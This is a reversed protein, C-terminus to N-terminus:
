NPESLTMNDFYNHLYTRLCNGVFAASVFECVKRFDQCCVSREKDSVEKTWYSLRKSDFKECIFLHASCKSDDRGSSGLERVFLSLNAPLGIHIVHLVGPVNGGMGFAPTAVLLDIKGDKMNAVKDASTCHGASVSKVNLGSLCVHLQDCENGYSCYVIAKEGNVLDRVQKAVDLWGSEKCPNYPTLNINVNERDINGKIVVADARVVCSLMKNLTIPKM